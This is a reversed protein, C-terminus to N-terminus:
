TQALTPKSTLTFVIKPWKRCIPLSAKCIPIEVSLSLDAVLNANFQQISTSFHTKCSLRLHNCHNSGLAWSLYLRLSLNALFRKRHCNPPTTSTNNVITGDPPLQQDNRNFKSIFISFSATLWCLSTFQEENNNRCSQAVDMINICLLTLAPSDKEYVM